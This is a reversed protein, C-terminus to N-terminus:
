RALCPSLFSFVLSFYSPTEGPFNYKETRIKNKILYKESKQQDKPKRYGQSGGRKCLSLWPRSLDFDVLLIINVKRQIIALVEVTLPALIGVSQDVEQGVVPRSVELISILLCSSEIFSQIRREFSLKFELDAIVIVLSM